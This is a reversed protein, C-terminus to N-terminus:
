KQVTAAWLEADHFRGDPGRRADHLLGERRLGGAEALAILETHTPDILTQVREEGLEDFATTLLLAIATAAAKAPASEATIGITLEANSHGPTLNLHGISRGDALVDYRHSAARRRPHHSTEQRLTIPRNDPDVGDITSPWTTAGRAAAALGHLLTSLAYKAGVTLVAATWRTTDRLRQAPDDATAIDDRTVPEARVGGVTILAAVWGGPPVRDATVAWLEHDRRQGGVARARIMTAELTMGGRGTSRHAPRNSVATPATVRHLGLPGFAYDVMLACALAGVGHRAHRSDMWIGMEGARHRRDIPDLGCQGAFEGDVVVSLPLVRGTAWGWRLRLYERIWWARSHRDAWSLASSNWYPEIFERDRLRIERWREFDSLRTNRVTVRHGDVLLPGLRVRRLASGRVAALAHPM